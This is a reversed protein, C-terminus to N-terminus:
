FSNNDAMERPFSGGRWGLENEMARKREQWKKYAGVCFAIFIAICFLLDIVLKPVDLEHFVNGDYGIDISCNIKREEGFTTNM